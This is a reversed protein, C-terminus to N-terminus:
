DSRDQVKRSPRAPFVHEHSGYLMAGMYYTFDRGSGTLPYDIMYPAAGGALLADIAQLNYQDLAFYLLTTEGGYRTNLSGEPFAKVEDVTIPDQREIKRALHYVAPAAHEFYIYAKPARDDVQENVTQPEGAQVSTYFSFLMYFVSLFAVILCTYQIFREIKNM